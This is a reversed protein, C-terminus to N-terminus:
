LPAPAPIPIDAYDFDGLLDALPVPRLPPRATWCGVAERSGVRAALIEAAVDGCFRGQCPGMGCRTFHKMQNVDRAGDEFAADIEARTVNECRCVVTDPAIAAVAAPDLQMLRAVADAFPALARLAARDPATAAAFGAADLRGADRAAALGAIRGAHVAPLAGRLGAGDGAALLGPIGTRGDEDLQPVWGGRLRDFHLPARLLRPIEASPVLGDGVCLADAEFRRTRGNGLPGVTVAELVGDGEATRVTHGFLVPISRGAIRLAWGLGQALLRPRTALHRAAALWARRPARDVVAVVEGGAALVKAAVAALRPGCGAVVIRRGPVIGQAKLMVTAAALGFVGPLTWGPFPIVRETAGTAALLRPAVLALDGGASSADLRFGNEEQTVSWIRASFHAEVSSAALAARLSDGARADADARSLALGPWPARWVQGGAAPAEDVLVVGLGAEAAAIAASAGAPGAGAVILDCQRM